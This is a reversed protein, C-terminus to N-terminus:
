SRLAVIYRGESGAALHDEGLDTQVASCCRAVV